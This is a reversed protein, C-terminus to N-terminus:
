MWQRAKNPWCDSSVQLPSSETKDIFRLGKVEESLNYLVTLKVTDTYSCPRSLNVHLKDDTQNFNLPIGKWDLVDSVQLSVADLTITELNARLPSLTITNKGTLKKEDLDVDLKICYHIADFDRDPEHKVPRKYVDTKQATIVFCIFFFLTVVYFKKM